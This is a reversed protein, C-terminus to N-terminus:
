ITTSSFVRSLEKSQSSILGTLGLPFLGQINMPLASASASARINQGGSIFLRSMPFCGSAPFSQPGSSFPVVPYSINPHCWQSLPCSNSCVRPPPSPCPLRTHQLGHRQLSDSVVSHSFQVSNKPVAHVTAQWAGRDMSNKLCSCQLPNGNGEGPSRGSGPISGTNRTDGANAPPNKVVLVVKSPGRNMRSWWMIIRNWDTWSPSGM